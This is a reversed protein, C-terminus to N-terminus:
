IETRSSPRKALIQVEATTRHSIPNILGVELPKVGPNLSIIDTFYKASYSPCQLFEAFTLSVGSM